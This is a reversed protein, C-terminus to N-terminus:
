SDASPKSSKVPRGSNDIAYNFDLPQSHMVEDLRSDINEITIMRDAGELMSLMKEKLKEVRANEKDDYDQRKTLHEMIKESFHSVFYEERLKKTERNWEDNILVLSPDFAQESVIEPSSEPSKLAFTTRLLHVCFNAQFDCTLVFIGKTPPYIRPNRRVAPKRASRVFRPVLSSM